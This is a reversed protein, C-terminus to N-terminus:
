VSAGIKRLHDYGVMQHNKEDWLRLKLCRLSSLLSIHPVRRFVENSHHCAELYYNPIRPSLHHIHHFGINGTFWQLVKPLKYYSSGVLAAHTFDWEGHHEWYSNEFQHQVYFMWVGAAGAVTMVPLQIMLWGKWGLWWILGASMAVVALNMWWVSAKERRGAKKNYFRQYVMFLLPPAIGFLVIPNRALRYVFRKWKPAALYEEVTMTWIDGTGRRDLDGCTAHHLSHEWRWHFYPTFTLMGTIFGVVNSATKSKFFAGHGCDHFIIFVRVLFLGALVSLLLTVWYPGQLSWAMLVWLAAYPVLTNIIQWVSRATSSNQYRAVIAKWEPISPMTPVSQPSVTNTM